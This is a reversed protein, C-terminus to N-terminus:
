SYYPQPPPVAQYQQQQQQQPQQYMQTQQQHPSPTASHYVPLPTYYDKTEGNPAPVAVPIPVADTQPAVPEVPASATNQDSTTLAPNSAVFLVCLFTMAYFFDTVFTGALLRGRPDSTFNSPFFSYTHDGLQATALGLSAAILLSTWIAMNGSRLQKSRTMATAISFVAMLMGIVAFVDFTIILGRRADSLSFSTRYRSAFGDMVATTVSLYSILISSLFLMLTFHAVTVVRAMIYGAVQHLQRCVPVLILGYLVLIALGHLWVASINVGTVAYYSIDCENLVLSVLLLINGLLMFNISMHIMAWQLSEKAHGANLIRKKRSAVMCALVLDVILWLATFALIIRSYDSSFASSPCASGGSFGGGGGGFGGRRPAM